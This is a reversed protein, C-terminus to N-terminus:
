AVRSLAAEELDLRALGAIRVLGALRVSLRFSPAPIAVEGRSGVAVARQDEVVVALEEVGAFHLLPGAEFDYEFASSRRSLTHGM